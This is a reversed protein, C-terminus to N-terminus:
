SHLTPKMSRLPVAASPQSYRHEGVPLSSHSPMSLSQSPTISSGACSVAGTPRQRECPTHAPVVAVHMPTRLPEVKLVERDRGSERIAFHETTLGVIPTGDKDLATVFVHKQDNSQARTMVCLACFM